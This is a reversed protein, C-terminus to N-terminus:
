YILPLKGTQKEEANGPGKLEMTKIYAVDKLTEDLKGKYKKYLALAHKKGADDM